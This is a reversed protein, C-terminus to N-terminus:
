SFIDKSTLEHTNFIFFDTDDIRNFGCKSAVSFVKYGNLERDEKKFLKNFSYYKTAPISRITDKEKIQISKYNFYNENNVYIDQYQIPKAYSIIATKSDYFNKYIMKTFEKSIGMKKYSDNLILYRIFVIKDYEFIDLSDDNIIKNFSYLMDDVKYESLIKKADINLDKALKINWVQFDYEGLQLPLKKESIRTKYVIGDYRTIINEENDPFNYNDYYSNTKFTLKEQIDM